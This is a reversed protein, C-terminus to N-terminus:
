ENQSKKHRIAAQTRTVVRLSIMYCVVAVPVGIIVAGILMPPLINTVFRWTLAHKIWDVVSRITGWSFYYEPRFKAHGERLRPPLQRYMLWYGIQYEWRLVFPWIPLLIDHATVAILAAVKSCRFAWSALVSLAYKVPVFPIFLPLFGVFVGISVGGAISHPTDHLEVLM